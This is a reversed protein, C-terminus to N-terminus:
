LPTPESTPKEEPKKLVESLAALAEEPSNFYNGAQLLKAAAALAKDVPMERGQVLGKEKLSKKEAYMLEDAEKALQQISIGAEEQNDSHAQAEEATPGVVLASKFGFAVVPTIPDGKKMEDLSIFRPQSLRGKLDVILENMFQQEKDTVGDPQFIIAQVFEDGGVRATIGEYGYKKSLDQLSEDMYSAADALMKNGADHSGWDPDDNVRKLDCVDAMVFGIRRPLKDLVDPSEYEAQSYSVGVNEELFNDLGAITAVGTRKDFYAIKEAKEARRKARGLEEAVKAMEDRAEEAEPTGVNELITATKSIRPDEIAGIHYKSETPSYDIDAGSLSVEHRPRPIIAFAQTQPPEEVGAEIYHDDAHPELLAVPIAHEHESPM